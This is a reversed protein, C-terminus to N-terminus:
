KLKKLYNYLKDLRYDIDYEQESKLILEFLNKKNDFFGIRCKAHSNILINEMEPIFFLDPYILFDYQQYIFLNVNNNSWKGFSNVEDIKFTKFYRNDANRNTIAPLLDVRKGDKKMNHMFTNIAKQKNEDIYTYLIGIHESKSYGVSLRNILVRKVKINNILQLIKKM